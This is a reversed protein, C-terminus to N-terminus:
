RQTVGHRCRPNVKAPGRFRELVNRNRSVDTYTIFTLLGALRSPTSRWQRMVFHQHDLAFARLWESVRRPDDTTTVGENAAVIRKGNEICLSVGPAQGHKHCFDFSGIQEPLRRPRASSYRRSRSRSVESRSVLISFIRRTMHRTADRKCSRCRVIGVRRNEICKQIPITTKTSAIGSEARASPNM